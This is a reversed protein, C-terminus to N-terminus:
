QCQCRTQKSEKKGEGTISNVHVPLSSFFVYWRSVGFFQCLVPLFFFLNMTCCKFWLCSGLHVRLHQFFTRFFFVSDYPIMIIKPQPSAAISYTFALRVFFVYCFLFFFSTIGRVVYGGLRWNFQRKWQCEIRTLSWYGDTSLPNSTNLLCVTATHARNQVFLCGIWGIMMM